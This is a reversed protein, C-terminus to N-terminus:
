LILYQFTPVKPVLKSRPNACYYMQHRINALVQVGLFDPASLPVPTQMASINDDTDNGSIAGLAEAVSTCYYHLVLLSKHSM